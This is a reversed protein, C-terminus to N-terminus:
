SFQNDIITAGKRQNCTPHAPQVNVYGHMGGRSLPIVHDVHFDGIIFEECIGCMGGHMEYVIAPDVDEIFQDLKRARRRADAERWLIRKRDPNEEAWKKSRDRMLQPHEHAWALAEARNKEPNEKRRRNQRARDQERQEPTRRPREKETTSRCEKCQWHNKHFSALPKFQRCRNCKRM